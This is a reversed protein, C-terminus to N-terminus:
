LQMNDCDDGKLTQKYHYLGMFVSNMDKLDDESVGFRVLTVINKLQQEIFLWARQEDQITSIQPWTVIRWAEEMQKSADIM